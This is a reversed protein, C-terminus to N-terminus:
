SARTLLPGDNTGTIVLSTMMVFLGCEVVGPIQNLSLELASPDAIEPIHLDL